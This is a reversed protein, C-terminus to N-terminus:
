LCEQTISEKIIRRLIRKWRARRPPKHKDLQECRALADILEELRSVAYGGDVRRMRPRIHM